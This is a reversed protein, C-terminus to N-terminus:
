PAAIVSFEPAHSKLEEENPRIFLERVFLSHWAFECVLRIPLRYEPDAGAFLDQTFLERGKLHELVRRYLADFKEPEFAQNVDGWYVKEATRADKVTFKDKPSRGTRKGTWGVLAGNSALRTGEGRCLSHEVLVAPHLNRYVNPRSILQNLAIVDPDGAPSQTSM